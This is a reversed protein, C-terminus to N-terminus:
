RRLLYAGSGLSSLWASGGGGVFARKAYLLSEEVEVAKGNTPASSAGGEQTERDPAGHTPTVRPDQTKQGKYGCAGLWSVLGIPEPIREAPFGQKTSLGQFPSDLM